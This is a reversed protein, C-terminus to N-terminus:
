REFRNASNAGQTNDPDGTQIGAAVASEAAESEGPAPDRTGQTDTAIDM